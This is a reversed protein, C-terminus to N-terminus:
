CFEQSAYQIGQHTNKNLPRTPPHTPKHSPPHTPPTPCKFFGLFAYGIYGNGYCIERYIESTLKSFGHEGFAAPKQPFDSSWNPPGLVMQHHLSKGLIM